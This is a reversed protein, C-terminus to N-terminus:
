GDRFTLPRGTGKSDIGLLPGAENGPQIKVKEELSQLDVTDLCDAEGSGLPAVTMDDAITGLRDGPPFEGDGIAWTRKKMKFSFLKGAEIM